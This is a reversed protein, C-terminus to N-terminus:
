EEPSPVFGFSQSNAFLNEVSLVGVRDTEGCYFRFKEGIIMRGQHLFLSLTTSKKNGMDGNNLIIAKM